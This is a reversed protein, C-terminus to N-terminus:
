EEETVTHGLLTMLDAHSKFDGNEDRYAKAKGYTKTMAKKSEFKMQGHWGLVADNVADRGLEISDNATAFLGRVTKLAGTVALLLILGIITSLSTFDM